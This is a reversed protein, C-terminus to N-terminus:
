EFLAAQSRVQASMEDVIPKARVLANQETQGPFSRMKVRVAAVPDGNRDRVPMVVSVSGRERGQYITGKTAVEQEVKGGEKGLAVDASGAVLVVAGGGPPAAYLELGLLRGHEALAKKVLRQALVERRRYEVRLDKFYSVSDSKTWLGIRGQSFSNDTLPPFLERGDFWCRIQNGACVVKLEYWVGSEVPVAVGIPPSRVGDVVKYFRVTDGLASVRLAYYNREDKLRFALGAMQEVEGVVAKVRASFTFDDYNDGEYILLPFREDTSDRSTQAVVLERATVSSEPGGPVDISDMPVEQLAWQGPAGAGYLASRFGAPLQGALQGGFDFVREAAVGPEACVLVLPLLLLVVRWSVEGIGLGGGRVVRGAARRLGSAGCGGEEEWGWGVRPRERNM